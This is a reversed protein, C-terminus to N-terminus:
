IERDPRIKLTASKVTFPVMNYTSTRIRFIPELDLGHPWAQSLEDGAAYYVGQYKCSLIIGVVRKACFDTPFAFNEEHTMM